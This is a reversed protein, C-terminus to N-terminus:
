SAMALTDASLEAETVVRNRGTGKAQYLGKDARQIFSSIPEGPQYRAVGFSVTVKGVEEGTNRKVLRKSQIAERVRDAIQSAPVLSQSPLLFVFEEGGYRAAIGLDGVTKKITQAVMKLVQDGFQHGWTDNFKKFHDIDGIVLCLDDASRRSKQALEQIQHDFFKRNGIGTLQDTVAEREVSELNTRLTQIKESSAQLESELLKNQQEMARTSEVMKAVLGSLNEPQMTALDGSLGSLSDGYNRTDAGAQELFKSMEAMNEQLQRGTEDILNQDVSTAVHESYLEESLTESFLEGSEVFRDIATTLDPDRGSVYAYWVEFNHPTAPIGHKELEAMAADALNRAQEIGESYFM